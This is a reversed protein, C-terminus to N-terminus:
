GEPACTTATGDELVPGNVDPRWATEAPVTVSEHIPSSTFLHGLDLFLPSGLFPFVLHYQYTVSVTVFQSGTTQNGILACLPRLPFAAGQSSVVAQESLGDVSGSVSVLDRPVSNGSKLAQNLAASM